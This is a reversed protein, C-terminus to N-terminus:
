AGISTSEVSSGESHIVNSQIQMLLYYLGFVDNDDYM